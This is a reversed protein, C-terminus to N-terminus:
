GNENVLQFTKIEQAIARLIPMYVVYNDDTPAKINVVGLCIQTNCIRGSIVGCVGPGVECDVSKNIEM